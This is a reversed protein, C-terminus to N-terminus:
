VQIVLTQTVGSEEESELGLLVLDAVVLAKAAAKRVLVPGSFDESLSAFPLKTIGYAGLSSSSM